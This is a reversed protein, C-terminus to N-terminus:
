YGGAAEANQSNIEDEETWVHLDEGYDICSAEQISEDGYGCVSVIHDSYEQVTASPTYSMDGFLYQHLLTVNYALTVPLVSDSGTVEETDPLHVFPFGTQDEDNLSYFLVNSIMSIIKGNDINTTVYPLVNNLLTDITGVGANMAKEKILRLIERQRSARRYDYGATRRIRAYSVAQTGNLHFVRTRGGDFSPDDPIEVEEYPVECAKATEVNYNNLHVLEERTCNVDLGGLADVAYALARFDVTMFETINLDLNLNLMSLFQEPGGLNYAANSKTYSDPNGYYDNGINLYTDRYLSVLKISRTDHNICCLIMTDSNRGEVGARTDLGALAIIDIGSYSAATQGDSGTEPNPSIPDLDDSPVDNKGQNYTDSTFVKNPDLETRQILSLKQAAWASVFLVFILVALVIMEVVLVMKKNKKKKPKKYPSSSM